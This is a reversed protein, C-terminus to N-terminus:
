VEKKGWDRTCSKPFDYKHNVAHNDIEEVECIVQIAFM